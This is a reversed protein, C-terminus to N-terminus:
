GSVDGWAKDWNGKRLDKVSIFFGLRSVDGFHWGLLDSCPLELLLVPIQLESYPYGEPTGGMFAHECSALLKWFEVFPANHEPPLSTPDVAYALRLHVELLQSYNSCPAPHTGLVEVRGSGRTQWWDRTSLNMLGEVLRAAETTPFTEFDTEAFCAEKLADYEDFTLLRASYLKEEPDATRLQKRKEPSTELQLYADFDEILARLPVFDFPRFRPTDIPGALLATRKSSLAHREEMTPLRPVAGETEDVPEIAVPWRPPINELNGALENYRPRKDRYGGYHGPPRPAKRPRGPETTHLVRVRALSSSSAFFILWGDRPAMGDWIAAPLEPCHIQAYFDCPVGDIEPWATGDPLSPNGGIWSMPNGSSPLPIDIRLRALARHFAQKGGGHEIVPELLSHVQARIQQAEAPDTTEEAMKEDLLTDLLKRRRTALRANHRDKRQRQWLKQREERRLRLESRRQERRKRRDLDAATPPFLQHMTKKFPFLIAIGLFIIGFGKLIDDLAMRDAAEAIAIGGAAMISFGCFVGLLGIFKM